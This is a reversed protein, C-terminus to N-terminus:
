LATWEFERGRDLRYEARLEAHWRRAWGEIYARTYAEGPYTRGGMRITDCHLYALVYPAGPASSYRAVIRGDMVLAQGGFHEQWHFGDPLM